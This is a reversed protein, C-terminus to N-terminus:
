ARRSVVNINLKLSAKTRRHGWLSNGFTASSGLLRMLYIIPLIGGDAWEQHLHISCRVCPAKHILLHEFTFLGTNGKSKWTENTCRGCGRVFGHVEICKIGWHPSAVRQWHVYHRWKEIRRDCCLLSRKIKSRKNIDVIDRYMLPDYRHKERVGIMCHKNMLHIKSIHEHKEQVCLFTHSQIGGWLKRYKDM